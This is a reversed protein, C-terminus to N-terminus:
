GAARRVVVKDLYVTGRITEEAVSELRLWQARCGTPPVTFTVGLPQWRGGTDSVPPTTGLPQKAGEACVVRWDLGHATNLADTRVLSALEYQGPPLVLLKSVNGFRLRRGAFVVRLARGADAEGTDVVDQSAGAIRAFTWDFPLGSLPLEFDGNFAYALNTSQAPPLFHMWALLALSYDGARVLQNLYPQLEETRPGGPLAALVDYTAAPSAASRALEGLYWERWPPDAALATVLAPRAAENAALVVLTPGIQDAMDPQSRLIVDARALADAYDGERLRQNLLWLEAGANRPSQAAGLGMLKAAEDSDGAADAAMGLTVLAGSELPDARLAQRALAEAEAPDGGAALKQNALAVLAAAHDRRWALASAPDSVARSGAVTDALVQWGL